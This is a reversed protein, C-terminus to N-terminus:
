LRPGPQPKGMLARALHKWVREKEVLPALPPTTVHVFLVDPHQAFIPLLDRMQQKAVELAKDDDLLNNPFCEKWLVIQNRGTALVVGVGSLLARTAVPFRAQGSSDHAAM